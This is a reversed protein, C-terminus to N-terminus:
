ICNLIFIFISWPKRAVIFWCSYYDGQWHNHDSIDALFWHDLISHCGHHFSDLVPVLWELAISKNLMCVWSVSSVGWHKVGQSYSYALLGELSHGISHNVSAIVVLEAVFMNSINWCSHPVTQILKLSQFVTSTERQDKLVPIAILKIIVFCSGTWFCPLVLPFKGQTCSTNTSLQWWIQSDLLFLLMSLFHVMCVATIRSFPM